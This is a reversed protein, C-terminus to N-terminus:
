TNNTRRPLQTSELCLNEVEYIRRSNAWLQGDAHIEWSNHTQTVSKLHLDLVLGPTDPTIQGRYKWSMSSNAKIRWALDKPINWNPAAAMLARAMTEVGMSGPMVPDEYFHAQYFWANEPIDEELYIYGRNHAGGRPAVWLKNVKPLHGKQSNKETLGVPHNTEWTGQHSNEEFWSRTRHNGDLGVQDMLVAVPFYGFSSSGLFFPSGDQSLEFNYKQIIVNDLSSSSVLKVQNTIVPGNSEPWYLLSGEGDLNRFYLDQDERDQITGLYASLFGCPQLAIEMLAVYPLDGPNGEMFWVGPELDYESILSSGPRLDGPDGSIQIVRDILQLPGNPLRPFRRNGFGSFQDGFCIRHDGDTFAQIQDHTYLAKRHDLHPQRRTYAATTKLEMVRALVRTLSTQQTLYESHSRAMDLSIKDLNETFAQAHAPRGSRIVRQFDGPNHNAQQLDNVSLSPSPLLSKSLEQRHEPFLRSLDVAVGHSVLLSIVKFIGHLDAQYKKNIPVVVHSKDQLIKEIWRSCTRQPGVEIFIRAGDKYVQNVLRPFDIPNCTMRSMSRALDTQSLVLQGYDAASYFRIDERPTTPNDYLTQFSKISAQMAPHHIAANLPMPLAHCGLDQIIRECASKEGAIVIEDPANLITISVREEADCAQKVRQPGDKLIYSGWFNDPLDEGKWYERVLAMKGSLQDKFLNSRNWTDSSERANKWVRNAWLMSTEGVSYGFAAAPKLDFIQELVMTYLVSLSIGSEILKAPYLLYDDKTRGNGTSNTNEPYYFLHEALSHSLDPFTDLAADQLGPFNFFLERAMGPYSNFAGPYVFAIEQNGLPHATFCSGIPSSWDNGTDLAAKVGTKAHQIEKHLEERTTALLSCTLKRTESRYQAYADAAIDKLSKRSGIANELDEIREIVGEQDDASILFLYPDVADVHRLRVTEPQRPLDILLLSQWNQSGERKGLMAASHRFEKGRALWPRSQPNLHLATTQDSSLEFDGCPIWAPLIKEKISLAIMILNLLSEAPQGYPGPNVLSVPRGGSRKRILNNLFEIGGEDLDGSYGALEFDLVNGEAQDPLIIKVIGVNDQFTNSLVIASTGTQTTESIVVLRNPDKEMMAAAQLLIDLLYTSTPQVIELEGFCDELQSLYFGFEPPSVTPIITLGTRFGGQCGKLSELIVEGPHEVMVLPDDRQVALNDEFYTLSPLRQLSLAMGSISLNM